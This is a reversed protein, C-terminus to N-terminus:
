VKKIKEFGKFLDIDRKPGLHYFNKGYINKKLSRLAAEGSTFVNKQLFNEGNKLKLLFKEVNKIIKSNTEEWESIIQKEETAIAHLNSSFGDLEAQIIKKNEPM